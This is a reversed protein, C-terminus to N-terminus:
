SGKDILSGSTPVGASARSWHRGGVVGFGDGCRARNATTCSDSPRTPRRTSASAGFIPSWARPRGATGGSMMSICLATRSCSGPASTDSQSTCNGRVCVDERTVQTFRLNDLLDLHGSSVTIRGPASVAPLPQTGIHTLEYEGAIDAVSLEHRVTTPPTGSCAVLLALSVAAAKLSLRMLARMTAVAYAHM